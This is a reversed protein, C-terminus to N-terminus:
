FPLPSLGDWDTGVAIGFKSRMHEVIHSEGTHDMYEIPENTSMIYGNSRFQPCCDYEKCVHGPRNSHPCTLGKYSVDSHACTTCGDQVKYMQPM